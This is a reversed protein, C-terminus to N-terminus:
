RRGSHDSQDSHALKVDVDLLLNEVDYIDDSHSFTSVDLCWDTSNSSLFGDSQVYCRLSYNVEENRVGVNGESGALLTMKMM